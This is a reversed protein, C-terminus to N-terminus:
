PARNYMRDHPPGIATGPFPTPRHSTSPREAPAIRIPPATTTADIKARTPWCTPFTPFIPFHAAALRRMAREVDHDYRRDNANLHKRAKRGSQKVFVGLTGALRSKRTGVSM